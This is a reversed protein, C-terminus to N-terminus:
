KFRETRTKQSEYDYCMDCLLPIHEFLMHFTGPPERFSRLQLNVLTNDAGGGFNGPDLDPKIYGMVSTEACM